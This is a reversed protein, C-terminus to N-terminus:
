SGDKSLSGLAESICASLREPYPTEAGGEWLARLRAFEREREREVSHLRAELGDRRPDGAALNALLTAYTRAFADGDSITGLKEQGVALLDLADKAEAALLCRFFELNYRLRKLGVRLAHLEEGRGREFASDGGERVRRLEKLLTRRVRKGLKRAM